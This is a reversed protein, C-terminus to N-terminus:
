EMSRMRGSKEGCITLEMINCWFDKIIWKIMTVRLAFLGEGGIIEEWWEMVWFHHSSLFLLRGAQIEKVYVSYTIVSAGVPGQREACGGNVSAKVEGSAV